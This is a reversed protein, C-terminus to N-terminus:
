CGIAALQKQLFKTQSVQSPETDTQLKNVKEESLKLWKEM